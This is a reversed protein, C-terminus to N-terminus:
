PKIAHNSGLRKVRGDSIKHIIKEQNTESM